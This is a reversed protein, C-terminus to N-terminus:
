RLRLYQHEGKLLQCFRLLILHLIAPNLILLKKKTYKVMWTVLGLLIATAILMVLAMASTAGGLLLVGAVM